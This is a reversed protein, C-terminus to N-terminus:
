PIAVNLSLVLSNPVATLLLYASFFNPQRLCRDAFTSLEVKLTICQVDMALIISCFLEVFKLCLCLLFVILLLALFSVLFMKLYVFTLNHKCSHLTLGICPYTLFIHDSHRCTCFPWWIPIFNSSVSQFPSVFCGDHVTLSCSSFEKLFSLSLLCPLCLSAKLKEESFIFELLIKLLSHTTIVCGHGAINAYARFLICLLLFYM